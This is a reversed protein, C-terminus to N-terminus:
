RGTPREPAAHAPPPPASAPLPGLLPHWRQLRATMTRWRARQDARLLPEIEDTLGHMEDIVQRRLSWLSPQHRAVIATVQAQQAADLTLRHALFSVIHARAQDPHALMRRPVRSVGLATTGAGCVWGFGFMLLALVLPRWNRPPATTALPDNM